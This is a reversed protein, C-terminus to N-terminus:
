EDVKVISSRPWENTTRSRFLKILEDDGCNLFSNTIEQSVDMEFKPCDPHELLYCLEFMTISGQMHNEYAYKGFKDYNVQATEAGDYVGAYQAVIEPNLWEKKTFYFKISGNEAKIYKIRSEFINGWKPNENGNVANIEEMYSAWITYVSRQLIDSKLSPSFGLLINKQLDFFKDLMQSNVITRVKSIINQIIRAGEPRIQASIDMCLSAFKAKFEKIDQDKMAFIAIPKNGISTPMALESVQIRGMVYNLTERLKVSPNENQVQVQMAEVVVNRALVEKMAKLEPYVSAVSCSLGLCGVQGYARAYQKIYQFSELNQSAEQEANGLKQVMAAQEDTQCYNFTRVADQWQQDALSHAETLSQIQECYAKNDFTINM